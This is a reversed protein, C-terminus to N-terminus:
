REAVNVNESLRATDAKMFERLAMTAYSSIGLEMNLVVATRPGSNESIVREELSKELLELDSRVLPEIDDTYHVVKYSLSRPKGMILRYSGSLSFERVNRRMNFPDLGDKAMSDVYVQKLQENEPYLIDFGPTPLVVDYISYKGSSIDEKTLARARTFNSTAVDEAWDDNIEKPQEEMIVLDGVQVELGFMEFRKSVVFNWVYSQYAHAYMVRLNRPIAMISKFYSQKGYDEDEDLQEKDLTSLIAHEAACRRPTKKLAMGANRTEAWIRRADVSDPSVVEQESLILDVTGKWDEKLVLAGLTHTSISFTGFRQMGFYNIYGNDKLSDFCQSIVEEVNDEENFAKVDRITIVFENGKLDGLGLGTEKYEFGGLVANKLGKNLAVVRGVKARNISFRQCTIGRRDKTGAYSISKLPMRLFKSLTSAVEMTERNEKYVTFHLFPKYPGLGYNIVGNEDVHDDNQPGSNARRPNNSNKSLTIKFTNETTTVSDLTGKFAERLLKHLKGRIAKDDFVTTTEAVRADGYLSKILDLEAQSILELLEKQHEESAEVKVREEQQEKKAAKIQEVEEPTKDQLEAREQQRKELKRERRSKGMEPGKDLLHVVAGTTDVENVLFDSYRQKIAGFFGGGARNLSNVYQTIGVDHEQVVLKAREAQELRAKKASSDVPTELLRKTANEMALTIRSTLKKPFSM